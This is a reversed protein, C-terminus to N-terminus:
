KEGRRNKLAEVILNRALQAVRYGDAEAIAGLEEYTDSHLTVSIVNRGRNEPPRGPKKNM